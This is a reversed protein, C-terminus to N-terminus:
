MHYGIRYIFLLIYLCIGMHLSQFKKAIKKLYVSLALSILLWTQGQSVVYFFMLSLFVHKVHSNTSKSTDSEIYLLLTQHGHLWPRCWYDDVALKVVFNEEIAGKTSEEVGTISGVLLSIKIPFDKLLM